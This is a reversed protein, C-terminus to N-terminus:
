HHIEITGKSRVGKYKLTMCMVQYEFINALTDYILAAVDCAWTWGKKDIFELHVFSKQYYRIFIWVTQVRLHFRSVIKNWKYHESRLIFETLVFRRYFCYNCKIKHYQSWWSSCWCATVFWQLLTVSQQGNEVLKYISYM